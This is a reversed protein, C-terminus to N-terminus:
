LVLAVAEVVQYMGLVVLHPQVVLLDKDQRAQVVLRDKIVRHVVAQVVLLVVVLKAVGLAVVLHHLLPYLHLLETVKHQVVLVLLL